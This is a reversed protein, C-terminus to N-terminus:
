FKENPGEPDFNRLFIVHQGDASWAANGSRSDRFHTIQRVHSGDPRVTFCSRIDVPRHKM